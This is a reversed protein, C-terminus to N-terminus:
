KDHFNRLLYCFIGDFDSNLRLPKDAGPIAIEGDDCFKVKRLRTPKGRKSWGLDYIALKTQKDEDPRHELRLLYRDGAFMFPVSKGERESFELSPIKLAAVNSVFEDLSHIASNYEEGIRILEEVGTHQQVAMAM